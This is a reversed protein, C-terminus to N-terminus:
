SLNKLFGALRMLGEPWPGHGSDVNIHGSEGADTLSAGWRAALNKADEYSSFPDNQSAILVTPCTLKIHPYPTFRPDIAEITRTASESPPAVLFAGKINNPQYRALTHAITPVGLSHGVLLVPRQAAMIASHLAHVWEDLDPHTWSKQTILQATSLKEAWRSQWHDAGSGHLGPVIVIDVDSSKM